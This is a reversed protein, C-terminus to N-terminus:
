LSSFFGGLEMCIIASVTILAAAVIWTVTDLKRFLPRRRIESTIMFMAM